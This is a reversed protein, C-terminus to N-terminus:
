SELNNLLLTLRRRTSRDANAALGREILRRATVLDKREFSYLAYYLNARPSGPNKALEEELAFLGFGAAIASAEKEGASALSSSIGLYTRGVEAMDRSKLFYKMATLFSGKRLYDKAVFKYSDKPAHSAGPLALIEAFDVQTDRSKEVKVGDAIIKRCIKKFGPDEVEPLLQKLREVGVNIKGEAYDVLALIVDVRIDGDRLQKAYGAYRKSYEPNLKATLYFRSLNFYAEYDNSDSQALQVLTKEAGDYNLNQVQAEALLNLLLKDDPFIRAVESFMKEAVAFHGGGMAIGGVLRSLEVSDSINAARNYIELFSNYSAESILPKLNLIQKGFTKFDKKYILVLSTLVQVELFKRPDQCHKAFKEARVLYKQATKLDGKEISYKAYDLSVGFSDQVKRLFESVDWTNAKIAVPPLVKEKNQKRKSPKKVQNKEAAKFPKFDSNENEVEKVPLPQFGQPIIEPGDAVVPKEIKPSVSAQECLSILEKAKSHQPQVKLIWALHPKAVEKQGMNILNEALHIRAPINNPSTKLIFQFQNYSESYNKLSFLAQGYRFRSKIQKPNEKVAKAFSKAALEYNKGSFAAEGTNFYKNFGKLSAQTPAGM